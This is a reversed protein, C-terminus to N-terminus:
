GALWEVLARGALWYAAGAVIAAILSRALFSGLRSRRARHLVSIGAALLLLSLLVFALPVVYRPALKRAGLLGFLSTGSLGWRMSYALLIPGLLLLSAFLWSKGLGRWFGLSEAHRDRRVLLTFAAAWLLAGLLPFGFRAATLRRERARAAVTFESEDQAQLVVRTDEAPNSRDYRAMHVQRGQAVWAASEDLYAMNKEYDPLRATRPRRPFIVDLDFQEPATVYVQALPIEEEWTRGTGLPYDYRLAGDQEVLEQTFALVIGPIRAQPLRAGRRGPPLTRLKVLAFPKGVHGQLTEKVTQPLAPLETLTALERLQLADHVDAQLIQTRVSRGSLLARDSLGGYRAIRPRRFLRRPLFSAVAVPGAALAGVRARSQLAARHRALDVLAQEFLADLPALRQGWFREVPTRRAEFNEPRAQLPLLLYLERPEGSEDGLSLCLEVRVTGEAQVEVVAFQVQESVDGRWEVPALLVCDARAGAAALMLVLLVAGIESSRQM